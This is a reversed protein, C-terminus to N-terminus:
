FVDEKATTSSIDGLRLEPFVKYPYITAKLILHDPSTAWHNFAQGARVLVSQTQAGAGGCPVIVIPFCLCFAWRWSSGVQNHQYLSCSTSRDWCHSSFEPDGPKGWVAAPIVPRPWRARHIRHHSHFGPKQANKALVSSVWTEDEARLNSKKEERKKKLFHQMISVPSKWVTSSIYSDCVENEKKKRKKRRKKKSSPNYVSRMYVPASQLSQTWKSEQRLLTYTPWETNNIGVKGTLICAEWLSCCFNTLHRVVALGRCFNSSMLMNRNTLTSSNLKTSTPCINSFDGRHRTSKGTVHLKCSTEM